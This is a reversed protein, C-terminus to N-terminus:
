SVPYGFFVDLPSSLDVLTFMIRLIYPTIPLKQRVSAGRRKAGELLVDVLWRNHFPNTLGAELHLMISLM